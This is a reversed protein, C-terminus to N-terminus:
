PHGTFDARISPHVWRLAQAHTVTIPDAADAAERAQLAHLHEWYTIFCRPDVGPKLGLNRTMDALWRENADPTITM